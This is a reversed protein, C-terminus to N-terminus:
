RAELTIDDVWITAGEDAFFAIDLTEAKPAVDLELDAVRWQTEDGPALARQPQWQEDRGPVEVGVQLAKFMVPGRMAAAVRLHKGRWATADIRQVTAPIPGAGHIELCRTGGHPADGTTVVHAAGQLEVLWGPAPAGLEGAEFDLNKPAPERPDETLPTTAPVTEFAAHDVTVTGSGMLMVGYYVATADAAVEGVIARESWQAQALAPLLSSNYFFGQQRNPRDVRLWPLALAGGDPRASIAFRVRKGRLQTADVGQLVTGFATPAHPGETRIRACHEGHICGDAILEVPFSKPDTGAARWGIPPSGPTGAEFDLNQPKEPLAGQGPPTSEHRSVRYGLGAAAVLAVPVGVGIGIRRRRVAPDALLAAILADITPFRLAPDASLGRVVHARLWAPVKTAKPPDAVKGQTVAMGLQALTEGPFPREGYLAEYLAICFSFQDSREDTTQHLHQEPSMYAPTGLLTGTRTLSAGLPSGSGLATDALARKSRTEDTVDLFAAARALGFDLVRARGDGGVM